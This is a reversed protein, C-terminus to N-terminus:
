HELTQIREKIYTLNSYDINQASFNALIPHTIHGPSKYLCKSHEGNICFQCQTIAGAQCLGPLMKVEKILEEHFTELLWKGKCVLLLDEWCERIKMSHAFTILDDRKSELHDMDISNIIAKISNSYGHLAVYSQDCANRLAELSIIFLSMMSSRIRDFLEQPLTPSVLRSTARTMLPILHATAQASVFHSEISYYTLVLIADDTPIENRYARVDRDIIGLIHREIPIGESADRIAQINKIVGNCGEEHCLINESAYIECGFDLNSSIREYIPVDDFGEVIVIPTGMIISLSLLEDAAYELTTQSM